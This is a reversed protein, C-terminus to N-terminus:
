ACPVCHGCNSIKRDELELAAKKAKNYSSFPGHWRGNKDGHIEEHRGNGNNCYACTAKHIKAKKDAVWNEYIYYMFILYFTNFWLTLGRPIFFNIKSTM